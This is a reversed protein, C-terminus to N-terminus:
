IHISEWHWLQGALIFYASFRNNIWQTPVVSCSSKKHRYTPAHTHTLSPTPKPCVLFPAGWCCVFGQGHATSSPWVDICCKVDLISKDLLWCPNMKQEHLIKLPRLGYNSVLLHFFRDICGSEAIKWSKRAQVGCLHFMVSQGDKYSYVLSNLDGLVQWYWNSYHWFKLLTISTVTFNHLTTNFCCM